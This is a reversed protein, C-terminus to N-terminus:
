YDYKPQRICIVDTDKYDLWELFCHLHSGDALVQNRLLAVLERRTDATVGGVEREAIKRVQENM